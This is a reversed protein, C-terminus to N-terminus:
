IKVKWVWGVIKMRAAIMFIVGMMMGAGAYMQAYLYGGGHAEILAGALPQGVLLAFGCISFVMGFRVGMKSPDKTLSGLSPPLMGQGSAMLFGYFTDFLLLSAQTHVSAWCFLILGPLFTLPIMLNLPGVKSALIAPILRGAVGVGNIILILSAAAKDDIGIINRGFSGLYFVPVWMGMFTLFMATCFLSYELEKFAGLEIIPGKARRLKMPKLVFNAPLSTAMVVFGCIRMAWSYGLSPLVNQLIAAFVLGGVSNGLAVIALAFPRKKSFYTGAISMTPVFILGGGIGLCLSHSLLIQWYTTSIAATFFGIIQLSTGLFLLQHFYGADSLRGSFAGLVLMLFANLSGIWSITSPPLHLAAVYHNQLVGYANLFGFTNFGTQHAFFVVTWAKIGGDPPQDNNLPELHSKKFALGLFKACSGFVLGKSTGQNRENDLESTEHDSISLPAAAGSNDSGQIAVNEEGVLGKESDIVALRPHDNIDVM